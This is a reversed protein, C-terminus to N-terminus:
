SVITKMNGEILIDRSCGKNARRLQEAQKTSHPGDYGDFMVSSQYIYNNNRHVATQMFGCWSPSTSLIFLVLWTYYFGLVSKIISYKEAELPGM